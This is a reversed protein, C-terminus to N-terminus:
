RRRRAGPAPTAAGRPAAPSPGARWEARSCLARVVQRATDLERLLEFVRGIAHRVQPDPDKRLSDGDRVYGAPVSQYLEGREAKSRRGADMRRKIGYLESASLTGKIGLVVSDEGSDRDYVKGEIVLLTQTSRVWRLLQFWDATDRALRSAELGIVAGVRGRAVALTLPECGPRAVEGSGSVGLDDDITEIREPPWGLEQARDRLAYQLRTSERNALVQGPTSQRVYM